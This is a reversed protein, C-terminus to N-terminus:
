GALLPALHERWIVDWSYRRLVERRARYAPSRDLTREILSAIEGPSADPAFVHVGHEILSNIPEVDTCFIPLRHLAAELVPLGFGEERSPFFLADSLAYLRGVDNDYRAHAFLVAKRLGLRDRRARLEKGYAEGAANHPDDAATILTVADRGRRRLEAVVDMGLEIRKRRVLRAPQILVIERELLAHEKVFGGMSEEYGLVSGVNVGNPIVRPKVGTLTEFQRARLESVAVYTFHPSAQTLRKWPAKHWACDYDPNCAAIDHVWAIWRIHPMEEALKWLAETLPLDFPMTLVNHTFVVDCDAIAARLGAVDCLKTGPAGHRAITRVEHEATRLLDAHAAIINEVGGVVPPVSYHVLAIRM